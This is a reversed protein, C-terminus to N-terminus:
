PGTPAVETIAPAGQAPTEQRDAQVPATEMVAIREFGSRVPLWADLQQRVGPALPTERELVVVLAREGQGDEGQFTGTTIGISATGPFMARIEPALSRLRADLEQETDLVAELSAIHDDREQLLALTSQYLDQTLDQRLGAIDM